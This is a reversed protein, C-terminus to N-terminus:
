FEYIVIESFINAISYSHRTEVRLELILTGGNLLHESIKEGGRVKNRVGRTNIKSFFDFTELFNKFFHSFVDEPRLKGGM